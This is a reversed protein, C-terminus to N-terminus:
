SLKRSIFLANAYFLRHPNERTSQEFLGFFSLGCQELFQAVAFFDSHSRDSPEFCVEVYVARVLGACLSERAGQLVDLDFGETDSKLLDIIPIHNAKRFSDVTISEVLETVGTSDPSVGLSHCQSDPHLHIRVKEESKNSVAYRFCQIKGDGGTAERLSEYTASVPEFCYITSHPYYDRLKKATQGINAGVDLCCSVEDAPIIEDLCHHFDLHALGARNPLIFRELTKRNIFQWGSRAFLRNIQNRLSKM